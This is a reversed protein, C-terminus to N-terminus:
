QLLPKDMEIIGVFVFDAWTLKGGFYGNGSKLEKEFRSFYYPIVEEFVEKKILAKKAPDTEFLYPKAKGWFDYFTFVAADLLAQEWLDTPLLKTKSALYRAIALSQNLSKNGEEYLPLQGYPLNDKVSKIPWDARDYRIDEFKEGAYHLIYRISEALGNLHFYHLKKAM